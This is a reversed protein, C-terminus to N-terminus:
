LASEGKQSLYNNHRTGPGIKGPCAPSLCFSVAFYRGVMEVM